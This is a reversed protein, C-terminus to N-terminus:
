LFMVNSFAICKIFFTNDVSQFLEPISNESMKEEMLNPEQVNSKVGLKLVVTSFTELAALHAGTTGSDGKGKWIYKYALRIM